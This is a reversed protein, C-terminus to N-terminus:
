QALFDAASIRGGRAAPAPAPTTGEPSGAVPVGAEKRLSRIGGAGTAFERLVDTYRHGLYEIKSRITPETDFPQPIHVRIDEVIKQNRLGSLFAQFGTGTYYGIAEMLKNQEVTNGQGGYDKYNRWVRNFQSPGVQYGGVNATLDPGLSKKAEAFKKDNLMTLLTKATDQASAVQERARQITMLPTKAESQQAEIDRPNLPTVGAPVDSKPGSVYKVNGNADRVPWSAWGMSDLTQLDSLKPVKGEQQARRDATDKRADLQSQALPGAYNAQTVAKDAAAVASVAENAAKANAGMRVVEGSPTNPDMIIRNMTGVPLTGDIMQQNLSLLVAPDVVLGRSQAARQLFATALDPRGPFSKFASPMLQTYFESANERFEREQAIVNSQQANALQQRELRQKYPDLGGLSMLANAVPDIANGGTGVPPPSMPATGGVLGPLGAPTPSVLPAAPAPQGAAVLAAYQEAGKDGYAAPRLVDTATQPPPPPPITPLPTAPANDLTPTPSPAQPPFAVNPDYNLLDAM